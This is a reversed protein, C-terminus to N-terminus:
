DGRRPDQPEVARAATPPARAPEVIATTAAGDREAGLGRLIVLVAQGVRDRGAALRPRPAPAAAAAGPALACLVGAGERLLDLGLVVGVPAADRRVRTG